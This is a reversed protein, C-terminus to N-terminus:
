GFMHVLCTTVAMIDLMKNAPLGHKKFFWVMVPIAMLFSGYFVFGHGSLLSSGPASLIRSPDEFVLFLKGGVVAAAFVYLFLSNAQDFTLQGEKRGASVLYAMGAVIGLAIMFGYSYVTVPGVEFLVPYM